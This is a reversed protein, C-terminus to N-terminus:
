ERQPRRVTGQAHKRTKFLRVGFVAARTLRNLGPPRPCSTLNIHGLRPRRGKGRMGGCSLSRVRPCLRRRPSGTMRRRRSMHGTVGAM